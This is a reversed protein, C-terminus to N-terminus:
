HTMVLSFGGLVSYLTRFKSDLKDRSCSSYTPPHSLRMNKHNTCRKTSNVHQCKLASISSLRGSVITDVCFGHDYVDVLGENQTFLKGDEFIEIKEKPKFTFQNGCFHKM